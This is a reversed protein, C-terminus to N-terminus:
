RGVGAADGPRLRGLRAPGAGREARGRHRAGVGGAGAVRCMGGAAGALPRARWSLVRAGAARGGAHPARLPRRSCWVSYRMGWAFGDGPSLTREVAERLAATDRRAIRDMMRPLYPLAWNNDLAVLRALAAGRLALPVASSDAPSRVTLALPRADAAALAAYFRARLDPYAGRCAPQADCDRLV